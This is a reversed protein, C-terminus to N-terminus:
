NIILTEKIKLVYFLHKKYHNQLNAQFTQDKLYM